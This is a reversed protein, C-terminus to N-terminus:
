DHDNFAVPPVDDKKKGSAMRSMTQLAHRLGNVASILGLGIGVWIVWSGWGLSRLWVALLTFGALPIVVSMGLQSLWVLMSVDKM